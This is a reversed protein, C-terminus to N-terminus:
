LPAIGVGSVKHGLFSLEPVGFVCKNNLKLGADSIRQLVERLRELHEQQTKGFVVVDDLYFLIGQCGHLITSMMQQFTAPASALGFCVRKYRFLGEHTIFATIDRSDSHLPVQHYAAALDLKSFHRAGHLANLLEEIHPLPYSDIVVAKNPSRLDVYMRITGDKKQVVVIPSVWESANIREIVGEQELRKVEESVAQRAAQPIRRMRHQVPPVSARIKVKCQIGKVRGLGPTFLHNFCALCAPLTPSQMAPVSETPPIVAAQKQPMARAAWEEVLTASMDDPQCTVDTTSTSPTPQRGETNDTTKESVLPPDPLRSAEDPKDADTYFCTRAAGSMQIDLAVVADMGLLSTGNDAIYFLVQALRTKFTVTATFAGLVNIPERSFNLLTVPPPVVKADSAFQQIFTSKDM